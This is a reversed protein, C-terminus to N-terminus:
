KDQEEEGELVIAAEVKPGQKEGDDETDDRM